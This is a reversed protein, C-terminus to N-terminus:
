GAWPDPRRVDAANFPKIPGPYIRSRVAEVWRVPNVRHATWGLAATAAAAVVGFFQRRELDM